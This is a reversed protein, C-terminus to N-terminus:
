IAIAGNRYLINKGCYISERFYENPYMINEATDVIPVRGTVASNALREFLINLNLITFGINLMDDVSIPPYVNPIQPTIIPLITPLM